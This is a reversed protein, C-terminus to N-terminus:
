VNNIKLHYNLVKQPRVGERQAQVVRPVEVKEVWLKSSELKENM